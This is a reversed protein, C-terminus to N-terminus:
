GADTAALLRDHFASLTPVAELPDPSSSAGAAHCLHVARMGFGRAGAIDTTVDDGVHVTEAPAVGLGALTRRFIEPHPKRLGVEDSFTLVSLHPALGLRDLVLRLMKGPTRGTNCILALALGRGRLAALLERAGHNASPLFALIPECYAAELADMLPDDKPVAAHMGLHELVWRIQGRPGVDAQTRWVDALREGVGDYAEAAAELSVARGRHALLEAIGRVRAERARRLNEATDLILTQWLDFTVAKLRM